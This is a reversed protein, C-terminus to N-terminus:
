KEAVLSQKRRMSEGKLELRHAKHTLRDLIADALTPDGIYEHWNSVPLQSTIITAAKGHRDEMIQLLALRANQDLAQLGWDDLILLHQRELRSMERQYSGDAKALQLRQLLRMLNYYGVRYGLQCAQFGLASAVYSKGCGTSGTLFINEARDIYRCDALRLILTKDLNRSAGYHLEDVSAQYRFRAARIAMQTRRHQRYEAEAETLQALLQDAPPQQHLPLRLLAEFAEFMGILKLTRLRELTAQNNMISM